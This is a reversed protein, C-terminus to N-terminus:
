DGQNPESKIVIATLLVAKSSAPMYAVFDGGESTSNWAENQELNLM